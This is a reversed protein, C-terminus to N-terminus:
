TDTPMLPCPRTSCGLDHDAGRLFLARRLVMGHEGAADATARAVQRRAPSWGARRTRMADHSPPAGPPAAAAPPLWAPAPVRISRGAGRRWPRAPPRGPASAGPRGAITIPREYRGALLPGAAPQAGTPTSAEWGYKTGVGAGRGPHARAPAWPRHQVDQRVGRSVHRCPGSRLPPCGRGVGARYAAGDTGAKYGARRRDM